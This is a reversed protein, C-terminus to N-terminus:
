TGGVRSGPSAEEITLALRRRGDTLASSVASRSIGLSDAVERQQLGLMYTMVLVERQRRPLDKVAFWIEGAAAPVPAVPVARRLLLAELQRRRGRRRAVNLAVTVAWGVPSAMASVRNWDALARAMAEDTAEAAVDVDGLAVVLAALVRARAVPYWAEFIVV